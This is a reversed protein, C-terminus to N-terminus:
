KLSHLTQLMKDSTDYGFVEEFLNVNLNKQEEKIQSFLNNFRKHEPTDLIDPQQDDSDTEEAAKKSLQLIKNKFRNVTKEWDDHFNIKSISEKLEICKSGRAPYARLDDIKEGISNQELEAKDIVMIKYPIDKILREFTKFSDLSYVKKNGRIFSIKERDLNEETREIEKIM